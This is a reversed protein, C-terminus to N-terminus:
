TGIVPADDGEHTTPFTRPQAFPDHGAAARAQPPPATAPGPRASAAAQGPAPRPAGPARAPRPGMGERPPKELGCYPCAVWAYSLPKACSRCPEKLRTRCSPCILFDDHIRRKCTPCAKQDELDQLLAEEELSREYLEALTHRPRLILYVWHGPLFFVLVVLVAAMQVIPDRSRQRIDRYTWYVLTLWLTGLYLALITLSLRLSAEWSGGPWSDFPM